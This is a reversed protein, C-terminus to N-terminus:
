SGEELRARNRRLIDEPITSIMDAAYDEEIDLLSALATLARPERIALPTSAGSSLIINIDHKVAVALDRKIQNIVKALHTPSNAMLDCADVEYARETGEVLEAEHHDLWNHKRLAPDDPFKLIDVRDDKAAQRAVEKTLCKVAIIEYRRRSKNLAELLDRSRKAELDLRTASTIRNDIETAQITSAVQSFGLESALALMEKVKDPTSPKFHLDIYNRV